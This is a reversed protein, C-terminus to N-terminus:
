AEPEDSPLLAGAVSSPRVFRARYERPNLGFHTKFRQSFYSADDWGVQAGIAAISLDTKLLLAAARESRHRALYALPPLGTSEKFLRVLYSPDLHVRSALERLTWARASYEELLEIVTRVSAHVKGDRSASSNYEAQYQTELKRVLHTLLLLLNGMWEIRGAPESKQASQVMALLNRRCDRSAQTELKLALIGRRELSLPGAYFLYNLAPEHTLLNLDRGLLETGFACNFVELARCNEYAHWAGPRLIFVDGAGVSQAGHLSHHTGKGGAIFVIEMFDHSHSFVDGNRVRHQMFVPWHSSVFHEKGQITKM